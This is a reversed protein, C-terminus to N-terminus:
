SAGNGSVHGVHERLQADSGAGVDCPLGHAPSDHRALVRFCLPVVYWWISFWGLLGTTIWVAIPTSLVVDLILMLSTALALMLLFLGGTAFRNSARVLEKKLRKRFVVRHFSAPAILLATSSAGLVLGAVYLDRQFGTFQGFAPTFALTLLFALLLQVGTQAVRVEQLIEAYSRDLQQTPTENRAIANWRDYEDIRSVM